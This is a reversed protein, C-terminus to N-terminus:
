KPSKIIALRDYGGLDKKIQFEKDPLETEVLKKFAVTQTHDIECYIIYKNIKYEKIQQFLERYYKLGDNGAVLALKPERKISPSEKVQKPTLYPLNALVTLSSDPTLFKSNLIPSLLNGKKFNIIKNVKHTLANKKAVALAKSSIDIAYFKYSPKDYSKLLKALTIIICGSGTGVDVLTVHELNHTVLKLAEEVMLETEPRPVLVDENVFFNLGYFEKEGTIVAVSFGKIRKTLLKIINKIKTRTLEQEPHSIIYERPKKLSFALLLDLDLPSVKSYKNKLEQITM